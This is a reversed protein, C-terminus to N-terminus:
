QESIIKPFAYIQKTQQCYVAHYKKLAKYVITWKTNMFDLLTGTATWYTQLYQGNHKHWRSRLDPSM